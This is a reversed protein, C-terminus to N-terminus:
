RTGSVTASQLKLNPDELHSLFAKANPDTPRLQLYAKLERIAGRKDKLILLSVAMAWHAQPVGKAAAKELYALSEKAHNTSGLFAGYQFNATANDPELELLRLYATSCQAPSHPIDLNTGLANAFGDRLLLSPDDPHEAVATDLTHIATRLEGQISARQAPSTFTPPYNAAHRAVESLTRDISPLDLAPPKAFAVVASALVAILLSPLIRKM